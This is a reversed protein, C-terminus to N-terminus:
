AMSNVFIYVFNLPRGICRASIPATRFVTRASKLVSILITSRAKRDLVAMGDGTIGRCPKILLSQETLWNESSHMFVSRVVAPLPKTTTEPIFWVNGHKAAGPVRGEGCLVQVRRISIGWITAAQDATIYNNM